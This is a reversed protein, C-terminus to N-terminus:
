VDSSNMYLVDEQIYGSSKNLPLTQHYNQSFKFIERYFFMHNYTMLFEEGLCKKHTGVIIKISFQLFNDWFIVM